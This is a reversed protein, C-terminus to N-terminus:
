RAAGVLGEDRSGLSKRGYLAEQEVTRDETDLRFAAVSSRLDDALAALSAVSAAAQQTGATTSTTVSSIEGMARAIGASARAQQEAALSIAEILESLQVATADIRTLAQGAESALRAGASVENTGANMAAIAESTDAQIGKVLLAIQQSATATREALRRVEEAVVAFGRGHEGAMAAEIAANLALLETQDAVEQILSVIAGIEQSSAGLQEIKGATDQVQERIRSMGEITAAVAKSGTGVTARAERAVQASIAANESVQQISVAMEEVATSTDAIRAAQQEASRSLVDTTALIEDTSNGVQQTANNVRGIIGRLEVIMYNFSDAVAGLADATVEAEVTLDGEAVSSVEDLLKVIQNQMTNSQESQQRASSTIQDVMGNVARAVRGLEDDSEVPARVDYDGAGIRGAAAELEGLPRTVVRTIVLFVAVLSLGLLALSVLIVATTIQSTQQSIFASPKGSFAAGIPKGATDNIVAYHTLYDQGLITAKGTYNQGNLIAEAAPGLLTVDTLRSGDANKFTTARQVVAGDKVQFISVEANTNRKVPDVLTFDNSSSAGFMLLGNADVSPLGRGEVLYKAFNTSGTVDVKAQDELATRVQRVVLLDIIVTLVIMAIATAILLKTALRWGRLSNRRDLRLRANQM